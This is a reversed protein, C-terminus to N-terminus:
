ETSVVSSHLTSDGTSASIKDVSTGSVHIPVANDDVLAKGGFNMSIETIDAAALSAGAASKWMTALASTCISATCTADCTGFSATTGALSAGLGTCDIDTALATPVDPTAVDAPTALSTVLQSALLSIGGSLSVDDTSEATWALPAPISMGSAPASLGAFSTVSAPAFGPDMSAGLHIDLTGLGQPEAAAMWADIRDRLATSCPSPTCTTAPRTTLWAATRSDWGNAQRSAAFLSTQDAPAGAQMTDLLTTAEGSFTATPAFAADARQRARTLIATWEAREDTTTMGVTTTTPTPTFVLDLNTNALAAPLDTLKISVDRATGASTKPLDGCGSAYHGIRVSVAVAVDAPVNTLEVSSNVTGDTALAGDVLPRKLLAACSSDVFISAVLPGVTRVGLYTAHVNVATFGSSSVSVTQSAAAGGPLRAHLGFM